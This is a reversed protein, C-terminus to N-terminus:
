LMLMHRCQLKGVSLELSVSLVCNEELFDVVLYALLV